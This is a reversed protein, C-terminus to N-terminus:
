KIIGMRRRVDRSTVIMGYSVSDFGRKYCLQFSHDESVPYEDYRASDISFEPPGLKERVTDRSNSFEIDRYFEGQYPSFDPNIEACYQPSYLGVANVRHSDDAIQENPFCYKFAPGIIVEIGLEYFCASKPEDDLYDITFSGIKAFQDEVQDISKLILQALSEISTKPM